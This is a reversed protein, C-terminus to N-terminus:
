KNYFNIRITSDTNLNLLQALNGGNIAIELLNASNFLALLEGQSTEQYSKNIRQIVYRNSQVFIKFPREQGIRYFLERSVNTIVNMFSDIYVIRGSILSEDITARYPIQKKYESIKEGIDTLDGNQILSCAPKVLVSLTPFTTIENEIKIKFIAEAKEKFLLSFIGNDASLFFHGNYKVAIYKNDSDSESKVGIIHVSGIPFYKYSNNLIFAAQAVNFPSINHTVDVVTASNVLSYIAGKVAGVYYDDKNWDTTLTIIPM